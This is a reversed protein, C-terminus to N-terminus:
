LWTRSPRADAFTRSDEYDSSLFQVYIGSPLRPTWDLRFLHLAPASHVVAATLLDVQPARRPNAVKAAVGNATGLMSLPRVFLFPLSFHRGTCGRSSRRRM